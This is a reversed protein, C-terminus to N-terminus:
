ADDETNDPKAFDIERLKFKGGERRIIEVAEALEEAAEGVEELGERGAAGIADLAELGARINEAGERSSRLGQALEDIGPSLAQVQSILQELQSGILTAEGASAHVREVFGDMAGMGGGVAKSLARITRDIRVSEVATRDALRRVAQAVVAFGKGAAGAKDAEIAANLSLVNTQDAIKTISTVVSGIDATAARVADLHASIEKCSEALARMRAEMGSLSQRSEGAGRAAEKVAASAVSATVALEEARRAIAKASESAKETRLEREAAQRAMRATKDAIAGGAKAVRTGAGRLNAVVVGISDLMRRFAARLQETEYVDSEGDGADAPARLDGNSIAEAARGLREIPRALARALLVSLLIVALLVGAGAATMNQSLRGMLSRIQEEAGAYTEENITAGLVWDWPAFYGVVMTGSTEGRGGPNEWSARVLRTQGAPLRMATAILEQVAPKGDADRANWADTGVLDPDAGVLYRGRDEGEGGMVWLEIGKASSVRALAKRSEGIAASLDVSLSTMGTVRANEDRVPESLVLRWADGGASQAGLWPRGALVHALEPDTEGRENVAPRLLGVDTLGDPGAADSAVCVMDGADNLRSYLSKAVNADHPFLAAATGPERSLPIKEGDLTAARVSVTRVAGPDGAPRAECRSASAAFGLRSLPGDEASLVAAARSLEAALIANAAHCREWADEVARTMSGVAFAQWEAVVRRAFGDEEIELLASLLAVTALVALASLSVIRTRLRFKM